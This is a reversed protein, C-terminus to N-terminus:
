KLYQSLWRIGLTQSQFLLINGDGYGMKNVISCMFVEIPRIDKSLEANEKGTTMNNLGFFVRLDEESIAKPLDIKNGLILIPIKALDPNSLIGQL